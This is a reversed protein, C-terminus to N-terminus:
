CGGADSVSLGLEVVPAAPEEPVTVKADGAGLSTSSGIALLLGDTAWTFLKTVTGAPDVVPPNLMLVTATVACVVTVMETEPAPTVFVAVSVTFGAPLGGWPPVPGVALARVSLGVDTVAPPVECPVTVRLPGAGAPPAATESPLLLVAAVTGGLTVTGAPAVLATKVTVVPETDPAVVIVMVALKPPVVWNAARLM